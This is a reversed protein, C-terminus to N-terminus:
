NILIEELRDSLNILAVYCIQLLGDVVVFLGGIIESYELKSIM